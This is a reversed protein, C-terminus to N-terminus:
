PDLRLAVGDREVREQRPVLAQQRWGGAERELGADVVDAAARGPESARM